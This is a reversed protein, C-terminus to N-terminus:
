KESYIAECTEKTNMAIMLCDQMFEKKYGIPQATILSENSNKAVADLTTNHSYIASLCFVGLAGLALIKWFYFLALGLFFTAISYMVFTNITSPQVHLVNSVFTFM